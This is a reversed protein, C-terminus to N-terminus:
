IQKCFLQVLLIAHWSLSSGHHQLWFCPASYAGCRARLSPAAPHTVVRWSFKNDFVFRIEGARGENEYSGGCADCRRSPYLLVANDDGNSSSSSGGGGGGKWGEASGASSQVFTASCDVDAGDTYM